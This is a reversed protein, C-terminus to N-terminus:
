KKKKKEIAMFLFFSVLLHRRVVLAVLPGVVVAVLLGVFVAVLPGMVERLSLLVVSSVPVRPTPHPVLKVYSPGHRLGGDCFDGGEEQLCRDEEQQNPRLYPVPPTPPTPAKLGLAWKHRM